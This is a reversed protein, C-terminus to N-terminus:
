WPRGVLERAAIVRDRFSLTKKAYIVQRKDKVKWSRDKADANPVAVYDATELRHPIVRSNRRDQLYERFNQDSTAAVLMSITLAAPNGLNDLADAMSGDEPSRSAAVIDFFATTKPPPAKPNFGSLDLTALYAAVHSNGERQLWGYLKDFYDDSFDSRMKDSWAVFHRRDDEPIHIGDLKHNTTLIVGTVNMVSYERVYKEDVRIVDPPSATYVKMHDYFAYRDVDGLNRAESVRLIVSKVFGNFQGLVQRPSVDAFNWPGVAVKVPELVADKGIGQIGGLVLAHNIKEGPHQVRHAFWRVIHDAEDPYLVRVHDLWPQAKTPDGHAIQPPRYLNFCTAGPHHIWGGNSVLRDRILTPLGPAWTMQEVPRNKDLWKSAPLPKGADDGIPPFRSNVSSAPWLDCTPLYIYQHMPMLAYFDDLSIEARVGIDAKANSKADEADIQACLQALKEVTGGAALWDCVDGKPPLGPLRVIRVRAAVCRLSKEVDRAHKEGAEDNDPFIIVDAGRFFEAYEDRWKGAGGPSCTAVLGKAECSLVAKEGENFHITRENAALLQPLHFPVRRTDCLKWVYGGRSDPRRQLFAKPEFRVVEFLLRGNEDTYPYIAVPQKADSPLEIGLEKLMWDIAGGNDVNLERRILWLVGGGTQNEHDYCIGTDLNIALSGNNGYRLERRSSLARNPEGLLRRAAVEMYRAWDHAGHM